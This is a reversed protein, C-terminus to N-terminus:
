YSYTPAETSTPAVPTGYDSCLRDLNLQLLRGARPEGEFVSGIVIENRNQAECIQEKTKDASVINNKSVKEALLANVIKLLVPTKEGSFDSMDGYESPKSYDVVADSLKEIYDMLKQKLEATVEESNATVPASATGAATSHSVNKWTNLLSRNARLNKIEKRKLGTPDNLVKDIEQAAAEIDNNATMRNMENGDKKFAEFSAKATAFKENAVNARDAVTAGAPPAIEKKWSELQTKMTNLSALNEPTLGNHTNQLTANISTLAADVKDNAEAKNNDNANATAAEFSSKANAFSANLREMKKLPTANEEAARDALRLLDSNQCVGRNNKFEDSNWYAKLAREAKVLKAYYSKKLESFPKLKDEDKKNLNYSLLAKKFKSKWGESYGNAISNTTVAIKFEDSTFAEKKLDAYALNEYSYEAIAQLATNLKESPNNKFRSKFLDVLDNSDYLAEPKQAFDFMSKLVLSKVVYSVNEDEANAHQIDEDSPCVYRQAISYALLSQVSHSGDPVYTEGGANTNANTHKAEAVLSHASILLALFSFLKPYRIRMDKNEILFVIFTNLFLGFEALYTDV